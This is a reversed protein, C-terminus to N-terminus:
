LPQSEEEGVKDGPKYLVRDFHFSSLAGKTGLVLEVADFIAANAEDAGYM